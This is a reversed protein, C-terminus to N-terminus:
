TFDSSRCATFDTARSPTFYAVVWGHIKFPHGQKTLRVAIRLSEIHQVLLDNGQRQLLNVTFFYTGGRCWTRRYNPM